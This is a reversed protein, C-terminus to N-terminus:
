QLVGARLTTMSNDPRQVPFRRQLRPCLKVRTQAIPTGSKPCDALGLTERGHAAAAMPRPVSRREDAFAGYRRYSITRVGNDAVSRIFRTLVNATRAAARREAWSGCRRGAAFSAVLVCVSLVGPRGLRRAVIRREDAFAGCRAPLAASTAILV